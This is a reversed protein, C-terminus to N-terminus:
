LADMYNKWVKMANRMGSTQYKHFKARYYMRQAVQKRYTANKGALKKISSRANKATAYKIGATKPKGKPTNFLRVKRTGGFRRVGSCAELFGHTAIDRLFGQDLSVVDVTNFTSAPPAGFYQQMLATLAPGQSLKITMLVRLIEATSHRRISLPRLNPTGAITEAWSDVVFCHETAEPVIYIFSHHISQRSGEIPITISPVTFSIINVGPNLVGQLVHSKGVILVDLGVGLGYHLNYLYGIAGNIGISLLEPTLSRCQGQVQVMIRSIQDLSTLEYKELFLMAIAMGPATYGCAYISTARIHTYQRLTEANCVELLQIATQLMTHKKQLLNLTSPPFEPFTATTTPLVEEQMTSM